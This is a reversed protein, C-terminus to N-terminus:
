ASTRRSAPARRCARNERSALTCYHKDIFPVLDGAIDKENADYGVAATGSGVGPPPRRRVGAADLSAEEDWYTNPMVVIMPKAKGDAILNDLIMNAQGM